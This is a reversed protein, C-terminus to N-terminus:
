VIHDEKDDYIAGFEIGNSANSHESGDKEVEKELFEEDDINSDEQKLDTPKASFSEAVKNSADTVLQIVDPNEEAYSLSEYYFGLVIVSLNVLILLAELLKDWDKNMLGQEIIIIVFYTLFVQSQGVEAMQYDSYEAYPQFYGYIKIFVFALFISLM